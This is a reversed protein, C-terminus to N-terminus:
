VEVMVVVVVVVGKLEREVVVRVDVVVMVVVFGKLDKKIERVMMVDEGRIRVVVVVVMVVVEERMGVVVM